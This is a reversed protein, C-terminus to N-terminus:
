ITLGFAVSVDQSSVEKPTKFGLCKRPRENLLDVYYNLKKETLTIFSSGKPLFQRLLKNTNENTAREWPSHPHAFYVSIGLEQSVKKHRAFEKGNDLTITKCQVNKMLEIMSKAIENSEKYPLKSASLFRSKRDVLTLVVGTGHRGLVTDGEIDGLRKRNSAEYPRKEISTCGSMKGRTELINRKYPKGKCRFYQSITKKPLLGSKVARYITPVSINLEYRGVIQEPSWYKLIGEEIVHLLLPDTSLKKEKCCHHRQTRYRKQASLCGYKLRGGNRKIERSITSKHCCVMLAIETYTKDSGLNRLIIERDETTLHKHSM